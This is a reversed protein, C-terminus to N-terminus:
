KLIQQLKNKLNDRRLNKGVIKGEADVLVIYPISAFRYTNKLDTNKFGKSEWLNVWPIKEEKVAKLWEKRSDDLSISVFVINEDKFQEYVTKLYKLESRCPGCWSAWFDLVVIKGAFNKLGVKQNDKDLLEFDPAKQGNALVFRSSLLQELSQGAVCEKGTKDLAEYVTLTEEYYKGPFSLAVAASLYPNEEKSIIGSVYKAIHINQNTLLTIWKTREEQTKARSCNGSMEAHYRNGEALVQELIEYFRTHEEVGEVNMDPSSNTDPDLYGTLVVHEGKCYIKYTYRPGIKLLYLGEQFSASALSFNGHKMQTSLIKNGAIDQLVVEGNSLGAIKATLRFNQASLKETFPSLLLLGWLVIIFSNRVM